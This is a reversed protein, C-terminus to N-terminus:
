DPVDLIQTAASAASALAFASRGSFEAADAPPIQEIIVLLVAVRLEYPLANLRAILSPSEDRRNKFARINGHDSCRADLAKFAWIFLPEDADGAESKSRAPLDDATIAAALLSDGLSRSGALVWSMRRIRFVVSDGQM